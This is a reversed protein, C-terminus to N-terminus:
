KSDGNAVSYRALLQKLEQQNLQLNAMAEAPMPKGVIYGQIRACGATHLYELQEDTEVGEAIVAIGLGHALAITASAIAASRPDSTINRVFCQDIKLKDLTFRSLYGLSSYGTGFDDLSVRVGLKRLAAVQRIASETDRMLVSETLEIELCHPSLGTKRLAAEVTELLTGTALQHASVNVAVSLPALGSDQWAKAQACAQHITWEGIPVILGTDEAVPIFEGPMITGLEPSTWRLLAEVGCLCGDTLCVQPQYYLVLENRALAGRLAHEVSMWHLALTNMEAKFFRVIGPGHQKAHSLASDANMLLESANNGDYPYVAIGVCATLAIRRDPLDIPTALDELLQYAFNVVDNQDEFETYVVVFEDSGPRALTDAHPLRKALRAASERLVTDGADHGLSDNIRQLRDLNFIMVALRPDETHAAEIAHQLRDNLLRRNPLRTLPDHNALFTLQANAEKIGSLDTIIGVYGSRHGQADRMTSITLWQPYTAGNRRRGWFEGRWEGTVEVSQWVARYFMEDHQDSKLMRSHQGLVQSEPHGTIREFAANVAVITGETDVVVIGDQMHDFVRAALRLKEEALRRETVDQLTGTLGIVDGRADLRREISSQLYRVPGREPNTRLEGSWASRQSLAHEISERDDPHLSALLEPVSPAGNTKDMGLLVFMHDSWKAANSALDLEWSGLHALRQAGALAAESTALAEHLLMRRRLERLGANGLWFVAFLFVASVATYAQAARRWPAMAEQVGIGVLVVLPRKQVQRYFYLREIGDVSSIARYSGVSSRPLAAIFKPLPDLKRGEAGSAEPVRLMLTGDTISLSVIGQNGIKIAEYFRRLHKPEFAAAIVGGFSGDPKTLRLSAGIFWVGHKSLLPRDIYLGQARNDRHVKFYERDSLNYKGPLRESDHIMDGNSNLIWIARVFPLNRISSTIIEQVADDRGGANEPLLQIARSAGQLALEVANLSDATQQELVRALRESAISQGELLSERVQYLTFVLNACIALFLVTLFAVLLTHAHRGGNRKDRFLSSFFKPESPNRNDV